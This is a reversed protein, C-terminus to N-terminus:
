RTLRWGGKIFELREGELNEGGLLECRNGM